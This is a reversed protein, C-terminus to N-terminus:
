RDTFVVLFISGSFFLIFFFWQSFMIIRDIKSLEPRIIEPDFLREKRGSKVFNKPFFTAWVYLGHRGFLIDFSEKRISNSKLIKDIKRVVKIRYTALFFLYLILSILITFMLIFFQSDTLSLM